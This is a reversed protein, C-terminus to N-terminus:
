KWNERWNVNEKIKKSPVGAIFINSEKFNKTVLTGMACLTKSAVSSGAIFKVGSGIYCGEGIKINLKKNSDGYTCFQSRVGAIKTNKEITVFAFLDFFHQNSISSNPHLSLGRDQSSNTIEKTCKFYNFSGILSNEYMYLNFPGTFLNFSKIKSDKIKLENINIISLLGIQSNQINYKFLKQYGLVRLFNFPIISITLALIFKSRNKISKM